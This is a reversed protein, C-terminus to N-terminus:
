TGKWYNVVIYASGAGVFHYTLESNTGTVFPIAFDRIYGGAPVVNGAGLVGTGQISTGALIRIDATGSQGIVSLGYVYHKTGAGSAASLTGFLSGGATGLTGQIIPVIVKPSPDIQVTGYNLNGLTGAAITGVSIVTTGASTVGITGGDVRVHQIEAGSDTTTKIATQTGQTIQVSM